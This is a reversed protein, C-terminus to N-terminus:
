QEQTKLSEAFRSILKVPKWSMELKYGKRKGNDLERIPDFGLAEMIAQGEPTVGAAYWNKINHQITLTIAWKITKRLLFRGRAADKHLNESPVVEMTPIYVSLESDTWKKIAQLPIDKEKIENNALAIAMKEDLPLFTVWGILKDGEKLSMSIENNMKRWRLITKFPVTDDEDYPAKTMEQAEWVEAITTLTFTLYSHEGEIGVEALIDIAEKPFRMSHKKGVYPILGAKVERYFTTNPKGLVAMAEKATYYNKEM